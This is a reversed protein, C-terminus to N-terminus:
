NQRNSSLEILSFADPLFEILDGAILSRVGFEDAALDGCLGHIFVGAIASDLPNLGQALFSGIIGSLVDGTGGTAMGNNGTPNLYLQEDTDVIITPSGKLVIVSNYKKSFKRILNYKDTLVDPMEEDILRGFEGPHPTLILKPHESEM